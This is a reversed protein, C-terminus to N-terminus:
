AFSVESPKQFSVRLRNQVIGTSNVIKLLQGLYGASRRVFSEGTAGPEYLCYKTNRIDSQLLLVSLGCNWRLVGQGIPIALDSELSEKADNGFFILTLGSGRTSAEHPALTYHSDCFPYGALLM